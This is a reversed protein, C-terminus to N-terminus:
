LARERRIRDYAANIAAMKETALALFEPPLGRAVLADPHHERVLRRHAAKIAGAGAGRDLGLVIYPDDPDAAGNAAAIRAFEADDFGFIAAVAGLWALEAEHLTGDARAIHFLGDLLDELVARHGAMLRAIQRAYTEFGLSDRKARDFLQAVAPLEEPPVQFVERFAAIEPRTVVGDAKAMKAGLVIVGITFAIHRTAEPRPKDAAADLVTEPAAEPAREEDAATGRVLAGLPGGLFLCAVGGLIKGWISM